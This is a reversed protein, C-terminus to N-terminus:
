YKSVGSKCQMALIRVVLKKKLVSTWYVQQTENQLLFSLAFYEINDDRWYLINANHKELKKQELKRSYNLWAKSNTMRKELAPYM